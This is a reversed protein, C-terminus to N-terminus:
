PSMRGVIVDYWDPPDVIYSDNSDMSEAYLKLNYDLGDM